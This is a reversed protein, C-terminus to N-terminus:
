KGGLRVKFKKTSVMLLFLTMGALIATEKWVSIFGLGKLMINKLIIIFYTTPNIYCIWQIWGPMNDIPFIFGSLLISPLMLGLMSAVMAMQQSSTSSSILIGISLALSIFLFSEALLLTISGRVPLGFVFNSLLLITIVNVFSLFIYPTVKGLVIQLPKLPSVLLVEMTGLEKERVISVSTLLACILVLIMAMTGPVFMYVGKLEPNYLMRPETVIQMPILTSTNEKVVFDNIIGATYNVVLNASNADSADAILHVPATKEKQLKQAFGQEFVVVEKVTGKRFCEGIEQENTLHQAIIFYGSSSLKDVIKRTIEDKSHDLIAIRADKVETTVIYGFLLMQAVPIGFLIILTRRDRFIHHFEKRVFGFFHKM